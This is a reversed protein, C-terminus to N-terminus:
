GLLREIQPPCGKSGAGEHDRVRIPCLELRLNALETQKAHDVSAAGATDICSSVTGRM